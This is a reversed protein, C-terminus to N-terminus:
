GEKGGRVRSKRKRQADNKKGHKRYFLVGVIIVGKLTFCHLERTVDTDKYKPQPM